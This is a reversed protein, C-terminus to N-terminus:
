SPSLVEVYEANNPVDAGDFACYAWGSEIPWAEGSERLVLPKHPAYHSALMGPAATPLHQARGSTDAIAVECGCVAAIEDPTIGGPRLILPADLCAVVTSELGVRCAREM